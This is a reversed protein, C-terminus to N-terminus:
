LGGSDPHGWTACSPDAAVLQRRLAARALREVEVRRRAAALAHTTAPRIIEADYGDAVIVGCRDPRFDGGDLVARDLAPPLGWYFRDCFDLYDRWKSDGLLDTQSVKIEVIIIQGKPDIGMLDARRGNRLPMEAMCWIDNRALLRCIGRAVTAADSRVVNARPSLPVAPYDPSVM